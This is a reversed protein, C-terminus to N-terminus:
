GVKAMFSIKLFHDGHQQVRPNVAAVEGREVFDADYYAEGAHRQVDESFHFLAAQCISSPFILYLVDNITVCLSIEQTNLDFDVTCCHFNGTWICGTHAIHSM